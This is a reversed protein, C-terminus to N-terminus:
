SVLENLVILVLDAEGLNFKSGKDCVNEGM